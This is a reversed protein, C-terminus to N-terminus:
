VITTSQSDAIKAKSTSLADMNEPFICLYNFFIEEYNPFGTKILVSTISIQDFQDSPTAFIILKVRYASSLDFFKRRSRTMAGFNGFIKQTVCKSKKFTARPMAGLRSSEGGIIRGKLFLWDLPPPFYDVQRLAAHLM